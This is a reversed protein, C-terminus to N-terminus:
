PPAKTPDIQRIAHRLDAKYNQNSALHPPLSSYINLLAPIASTVNTRRYQFANFAFMRVFENTDTLSRLMIPLALDEANHHHCFYVLAAQRLRADSHSALPVILASINTPPSMGLAFSLGACAVRKDKLNDSALLNTFRDLKIADANSSAIGSLAQGVRIRTVDKDDNGSTDQSTLTIFLDLLTPLANTDLQQLGLQAYYRRQGARVFVDGIPLISSAIKQLLVRPAPDRAELESLLYPLANTGLARCAEYYNTPHQEAWHTLPQGKYIPVEVARKKWFPISAALLAAVIGLVILQKKYFRLKLASPHPHFTATSPSQPCTSFLHPNVM